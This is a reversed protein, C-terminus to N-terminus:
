TGGWAKNKLWERGECKQWVCCATYIRSQAGDSDACWTGCDAFCQGSFYVCDIKHRNGQVRKKCIDNCLWYSDSSQSSWIDVTLQRLPNILAIIKSPYITWMSSGPYLSQCGNSYRCLLTKCNFCQWDTSDFYYINFFFLYRKYRQWFSLREFPPQNVTSKFRDWRVKKQLHWLWVFARICGTSVDPRRKM